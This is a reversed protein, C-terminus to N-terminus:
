AIKTLEKLGNQGLFDKVLNKQKNKKELTLSTEM